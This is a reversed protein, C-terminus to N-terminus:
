WPQIFKATPKSPDSMGWKQYIGSALTKLASKDSLSISYGGESINPSSILTVLCDAYALEMPKKNTAEYMASDTLGRDMLALKFANDSLPYNVKAKIAELNTM